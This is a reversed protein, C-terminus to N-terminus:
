LRDDLSRGTENHTFTPLVARIAAVIEEKALGGEGGDILAELKATLSQHEVGSPAHRVSSVTQLGFPSETEDAGIFEEFPKEGSTDLPTLILPWRGQASLGGVDRRAAEEDEYIAAEYGFEALVRAAIEQMPQLEHEPDLRPFAIHQDPALFAAILCLEGSEEESVFYRRTDRPAAIPQGKSLRHLFGQLLSGNSFAVNAFRTSSTRAAAKSAVDFAVNEMLRKSAGMLSSPNAAKDTSVAFYTSGHGHRELAAKFRVHAVVNTHLMHLLSYVDKESRVHKLAAFNLVIDFPATNSLMRAMIPGGYDIAITQLEAKGVGEPRGRLTRVLEVLYNESIDAVLVAAPEYRFLLSTTASGITGGGGVVLIRKGAIAQRLADTRAAIDPAFLSQERRSVLRGLRPGADGSLPVQRADL